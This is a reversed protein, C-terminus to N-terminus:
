LLKAICGVTMVVAFDCGGLYAKLAQKKVQMMMQSMGDLCLIETLFSDFVMEPHIMGTSTEEPNEVQLRIGLSAKSRTFLVLDKYLVSGPAKESESEIGKETKEKFAVFCLFGFQM